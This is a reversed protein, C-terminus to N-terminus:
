SYIKWLSISFNEIIFSKKKNKWVFINIDIAIENDLKSVIRRIDLM